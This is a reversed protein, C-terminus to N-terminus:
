VADAVCTVAVEGVALAVFTANSVLITSVNSPATALALTFALLIKTCPECVPVMAPAKLPPSVVSIVKSGVLLKLGPSVMVTETVALKPILLAVTNLKVVVTLGSLGPCNTFPCLIMLVEAFLARLTKEASM